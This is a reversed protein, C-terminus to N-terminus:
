SGSAMMRNISPLDAASVQKCGRLHRKRKTPKKTLIHSTFSQKHKFGNATRKFRKTAASRSKMKPM